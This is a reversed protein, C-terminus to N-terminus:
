SAMVIVAKARQKAGKGGVIISRVLCEGECRM